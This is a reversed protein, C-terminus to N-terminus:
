QDSKLDGLPPEGPTTPHYSVEWTASGPMAELARVCIAEVTAASSGRDVSASFFVAKVGSGTVQVRIHEIRDDARTHLWFHDRWDEDTLRLEEGEDAHVLLMIMLM